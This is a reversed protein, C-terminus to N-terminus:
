WGVVLSRRVMGGGGFSEEGVWGVLVNNEM